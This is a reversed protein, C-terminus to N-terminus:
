CVVESPRVFAFYATAIHLQNTTEKTMSYCVKGRQPKWKGRYDALAEALARSDVSAGTAQWEISAVPKM